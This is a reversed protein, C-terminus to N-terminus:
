FILIIDTYFNNKLNTHELILNQLKFVNLATEQDPWTETDGM